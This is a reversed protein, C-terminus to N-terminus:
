KLTVEPWQPDVQPPKPHSPSCKPGGQPWKPTVKPDSRKVKPDFGPKIRNIHPGTPASCRVGKFFVRPKIANKIKM